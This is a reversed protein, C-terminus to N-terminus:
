PPNLDSLGNRGIMGSRTDSDKGVHTNFDGLLIIPDGTLASKVVGRRPVGVLSPVRHKRKAWLCLCCCPVKGEHIKRRTTLRCSTPCIRGNRAAGRDSGNPIARAVLGKGTLGSLIDVAWGLYTLAM